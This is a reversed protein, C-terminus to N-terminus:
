EAAGGWAQERLVLFHQEVPRRRAPAAPRSRERGQGRRHAGRAAGSARPPSGGASGAPRVAPRAEALADEAVRHGPALSALPVEQLLLRRIESGSPGPALVRPARVHPGPGAADAGGPAAYGAGAYSAGAAGGAASGVFAAARAARAARNDGGGPTFIQAAECAM